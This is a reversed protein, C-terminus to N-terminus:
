MMEEITIEKIWSGLDAMSGQLNSPLVNAVLIVSWYQFQLGLAFGTVFGGAIKVWEGNVVTCSPLRHHVSPSFGRNRHLPQDDYRPTGGHMFHPNM